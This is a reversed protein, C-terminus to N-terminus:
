EAEAQIHGRADVVRVTSAQPGQDGAEETYAVGAGIRLHDFHGELLSNRHFYVERGDVTEIFGYDDFLKSVIAALQQEPHSKVEARQQAVLKKLQRAAIEFAEHVATYLDDAVNASRRAARSVVIEHGPPVKLDIRVRYDTGDAAHAHPRELVVRCSTIHDCYRELKAGSERVLTDLAESKEIDRFTVEMPLQM